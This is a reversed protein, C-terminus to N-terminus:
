QSRPRESILDMLGQEIEKLQVEMGLTTSGLATDLSCQEPPLAPDAVIEPVFEEQMTRAFYAHWEALYQPNIRLKTKTGAEMQELAVRVIAALLLPDVQAERHLIKRAISLALQVVEVEVRKFYQERERVFESLASVIGGRIKQLQEDYYARARTEGDKRGEERAAQERTAKEEQTAIGTAPLDRGNDGADAYRFAQVQIEPKADLAPSSSTSM